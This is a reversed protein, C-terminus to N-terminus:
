KFKPIDYSLNAAPFNDFMKKMSSTQAVAWNVDTAYQHTGPSAPNWRMKYLNNQAYDSNNIYKESIWKAGGDIAKEPSTWGM